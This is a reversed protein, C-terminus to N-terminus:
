FFENILDLYDLLHRTTLFKERVYEKGRVGMAKAEDPHQLLWIIKEAYGKHDHPELLFGSEGDEIQNPIGGVMSAVVPTGKWLAESVTLGFGERISKQIIVNSIRQLVNVLVHNEATIMIIDKKKLHKEAKQRVKNYIVMGEPDDAAMNGCLILRCDVEEKVMEFVKIVGEPDKWPDFRSIQTILPKDTPIGFKGLMKQILEPTLDMNKPSLPDISPYILKQPVPLDPRRFKEDSIIVMDYKLIFGKLYDWVAPDPNSIDIHCRWVWPQHKRQFNILPLPQPDHIVALDHDIHTFRAFAENNDEYLQRKIKSFNIQNGQLANHIKKTVNFFDANGHLIRWGTKVGVDNMLSILSHLIEAVGGGQYTSNVQVVHKRSIKLTKRYIESIMRDGVIRRYDRLCKLL